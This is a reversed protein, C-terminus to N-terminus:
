VTQTTPLDAPIEVPQVIMTEKRNHDESLALYLKAILVSAIPYTILLGIGFPIVGIIYLAVAVIGTLFVIEVKGKTIDWSYRLSKQVSEKRDLYALNAMSLRIAIYIGPIVLLVLGGLMMLGGLLAIVFMLRIETWDPILDRLAGFKLKSTDNRAGALSIKLWVISWIYAAIALILQIPWPTEDGGIINIIITVLVVVLFFSIHQKFLVFAERINAKISFTFTSM